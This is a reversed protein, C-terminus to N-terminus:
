APVAQRRRRPDPRHHPAADGPPSGRAPRFGPRRQPLAVAPCARQPPAAAPADRLEGPRQSLAEDAPGAPANDGRSFEPPLVTFGPGGPLEQLKELCQRRSRHGCLVIELDIGLEALSLVINGRDAGCRRLYNYALNPLGVFLTKRDASLTVVTQQPGTM